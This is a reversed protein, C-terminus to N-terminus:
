DAWFRVWFDRSISLKVVRTENESSFNYFWRWNVLVIVEISSHSLLYSALLRLALVREGAAPIMSVVMEPETAELVVM